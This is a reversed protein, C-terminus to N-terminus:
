QYKCLSSDMICERCNEKTRVLSDESIKECLSLNKTNKAVFYYCNDRTPRLIIIEECLSSDNQSLAVDYYCSERHRSELKECLKKDGKASAIKLLCQTKWDPFSSSSSIKECISIDLNEIAINYYCTDPDDTKECFSTDGTQSIIQSICKNLETGDNIKNCITIDENKIAVRRYCIDKLLGEHSIKECISADKRLSAIDQYCLDKRNETAICECLSLNNLEVAFAYYCIGQNSSGKSIKECDAPEIASERYCYDKSNVDKINECEDPDAYKIARSYYYMYECRQRSEKEKSFKKCDQLSPTLGLYQLFTLYCNEKDSQEECEDLTDYIEGWEYPAEKSYLENSEITEHYCLKRSDENSIEGCDSIKEIFSQSQTLSIIITMVILLVVLLIGIILFPKWPFKRSINNSNLNNRVM